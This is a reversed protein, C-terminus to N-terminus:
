GGRRIRCRRCTVCGPMSRSNMFEHGEAVCKLYSVPRFPQSKPPTPAEREVVKPVVELLPAAPRPPQFTIRSDDVLDIVTDLAGLQERLRQVGELAEEIKRGMAAQRALLADIVQNGEVIQAALERRKAELSTEEHVLDLVTTM